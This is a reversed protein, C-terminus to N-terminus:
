AARARWARPTAPWRERGAGPRARDDPVGDRLRTVPLGTAPDIVPDGLLLEEYSVVRGTGAITGRLDLKAPDAHCTTCTNAGRHRALADM